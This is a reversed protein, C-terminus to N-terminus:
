QDHRKPYHRGEGWALIGNTKVCHLAVTEGTREADLRHPTIEFVRGDAARIGEVYLRAKEITGAVFMIVPSRDEDDDYGEVVHIFAAPEAAIEALLADRRERERTRNADGMQKLREASPCLPCEGLEGDHVPDDAHQEIRPGVDIIEAYHVGMDTAAMSFRLDGTANAQGIEWDRGHQIWYWGGHVIDEARPKPPTDIIGGEEIFRRCRGTRDPGHEELTMEWFEDLPCHGGLVSRVYDRVIADDREDTSPWLHGDHFEYNGDPVHM